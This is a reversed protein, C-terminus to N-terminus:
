KLTKFINKEDMIGHKLIKYGQGIKKVIDTM